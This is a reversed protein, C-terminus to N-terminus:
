GLSLLFGCSSGPSRGCDVTRATVFDHRPGPTPPTRIASASSAHRDPMAFPGREHIGRARLIWTAIQQM